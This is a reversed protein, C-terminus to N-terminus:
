LPQLSVAVHKGGSYKAPCGGVFSQYQASVLLSSSQYGSATLTASYAGETTAFGCPLTCQLSSGVVRVNPTTVGLVRLDLPVGNVKVDTLAIETVPAASVADSAATIVLIPEEYNVVCPGVASNATDNGGGGGCATVAAAIVLALQHVNHKM